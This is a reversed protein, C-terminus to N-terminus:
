QDYKKRKYLYLPKAHPELLLLNQIEEIVYTQKPTPTHKFVKRANAKDVCLYGSVNPTTKLLKEYVRLSDNCHNLRGIYKRELTGEHGILLFLFMSEKIM